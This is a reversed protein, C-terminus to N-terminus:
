YSLGHTSYINISKPLHNVAFYAFLVLHQVAKREKRVERHVVRLPLIQRCALEAAAM